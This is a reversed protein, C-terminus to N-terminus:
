TFFPMEGAGHDTIDIVETVEPILEAIMVTVGDRLTAASLACGQCGGGMELFVETGEVRDVSVWGGHAALAPNIQQELLQAVKEEISGSLEISSTDQILRPRNPNRIVLGSQLPNSPLDLVAGTLREVSDPEVMILLDGVKYTVDDEFDTALEFALDYAYDIGDVGVIRVRLGLEESDPEEALIEFVQKLAEDSVDLILETEGAAGTATAPAETSATDQSSDKHTQPLSM